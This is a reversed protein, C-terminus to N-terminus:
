LCNASNVGLLSNKNQAKLDRRTPLSKYLDHISSINLNNKFELTPGRHKQRWTTIKSLVRTHATIVHACFQLSTVINPIQFLGSKRSQQTPIKLFLNESVKQPTQENQAVIFKHLQYSFCLSSVHM